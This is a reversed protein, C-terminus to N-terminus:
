LSHSGKAKRAFNRVVYRYARRLKSIKARPAMEDGGNGLVGRLSQATESFEKGNKVIAYVMGMMMIGKLVQAQQELEMEDFADAWEDDM